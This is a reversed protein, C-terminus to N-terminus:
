TGFPHYHSYKHCPCKEDNGGDGVDEWWYNDEQGEINSQFLNQVNDCKKCIRTYPNHGGKFLRWIVICRRVLLIVVLVIFCGIINMFIEM